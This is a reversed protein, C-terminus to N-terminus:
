TGEKAQLEGLLGARQRLDGGIWWADGPSLFVFAHRGTEDVVDLRVTGGPGAALAVHGGDPM